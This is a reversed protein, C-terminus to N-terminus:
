RSAPPLFTNLASTSRLNVPGFSIAESTESVRVNM